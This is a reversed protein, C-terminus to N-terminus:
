EQAIRQLGRELKDAASQRATTGNGEKIININRQQYRVLFEFSTAWTSLKPHAKCARIYAEVMEEATRDPYKATFKEFRKLLTTCHKSSMGDGDLQGGNLDKFLNVLRAVEPKRRDVRETIIPELPTWRIVGAKLPMGGKTWALGDWYIDRYETEGVFMDVEALVHLATGEDPSKTFWAPM